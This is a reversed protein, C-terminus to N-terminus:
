RKSAKGGKKPQAGSGAEGEPPLLEGNSDIIRWEAEQGRMKVLVLGQADDPVQDPTTSETM